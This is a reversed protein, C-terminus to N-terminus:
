SNAAVVRRSRAKKPVLASPDIGDALSYRWFHTEKGEKTTGSVESITVLGLAHLTQLARDVTARPKDLDRRAETTSVGSHVVLYNLLVLRLPPVSDRACRLALAMAADRSMGIAVGGRLLQGLQEAFRTPAEPAHADIVDGRYDYEVATRARTALNAAALLVATQTASLAVPATDMGAIVGGV